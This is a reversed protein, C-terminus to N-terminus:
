LVFNQIHFYFALTKLEREIFVGRLIREISRSQVCPGRANSMVEDIVRRSHDVKLFDTSIFSGYKVRNAAFYDIAKKNLVLDFEKKHDLSLLLHQYPFQYRNQIDRIKQRDEENMVELDNGDNAYKAIIETLQRNGEIMQNYISAYKEKIIERRWQNDLVMLDQYILGFIKEYEVLIQSREVELKSQCLGERAANRIEPDLKHFTLFRLQRKGKDPWIGSDAGYDRSLKSFLEAEQCFTQVVDYVLYDSSLVPTSHVRGETLIFEKLTRLTLQNKLKFLKSWSSVDWKSGESYYAGLEDHHSNAYACRNEPYHYDLFKLLGTIFPPPKRERSVILAGAYCQLFITRILTQDSFDRYIKQLAPATLYDGNWLSLSQPGGHDGFVATLSIPNSRNIDDLSNKLNETTAALFPKELELGPSFKILGTEDRVQQGNNIAVVTGGPGGANLITSKGYFLNYHFSKLDEENTSNNALETYGGNVYLFKKRDRLDPLSELYIPGKVERILKGSINRYFSDLSSSFLYELHPGIIEYELRLGVVFNVFFDEDAPNWKRGFRSSMLQNFLIKFRKVSTDGERGWIRNFDLDDGMIRLCFLKSASNVLEEKDSRLTLYWIYGSLVEERSLTWREMKGLVLKQVPEAFIEAEISQFQEQLNEFQNPNGNSDSREQFLNEILGINGVIEQYWNMRRIDEESQTKNSFHSKYEEESMLYKLLRRSFDIKMMQGPNNSQQNTRKVLEDQVEKSKMVSLQALLHAISDVEKVNEANEANEILGYDYNLFGEMEETLRSAKDKPLTESGGWQGGETEVFESEIERLLLGNLESDQSGAIMLTYWKWFQRFMEKTRLAEWKNKFENQIESDKFHLYINYFYAQIPQFKEYMHMADVQIGGLFEKAKDRRHSDIQVVRDELFKEKKFYRLLPGAFGQFRGKPNLLSFEVFIEVDEFSVGLVEALAPLRNSELNAGFHFRLFINVMQDVYANKRGAPSTLDTSRDQLRKHFDNIPYRYRHVMGMGHDDFMDRMWGSRGYHLRGSDGIEQIKKEYASDIGAIRDSILKKTSLLISQDKTASLFYLIDASIEEHLERTLSMKIYGSYLLDAPLEDIMQFMLFRTQYWKNRLNNMKTDAEEQSNAFASDGVFCDLASLTEAVRRRREAERWQKYADKGGLLSSFIGDVALEIQKSTQYSNLNAEFSEIYWEFPFHLDRWYDGILDYPLMSNQQQQVLQYLYNQIKDRFVNRKEDENEKISEHLKRGLFIARERIKPDGGLYAALTLDCYGCENISTLVELNSELFQRVLPNEWNYTLSSWYRLARYNSKNSYPARGKQAIRRYFQIADEATPGWDAHSFGIFGFVTLLALLSLAPSYRSKM